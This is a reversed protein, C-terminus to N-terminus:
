YFLTVSLTSVVAIGWSACLVVKSLKFSNEDM